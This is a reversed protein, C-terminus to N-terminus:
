RRRELRRERGRRSEIKEEGNEQLDLLMPFPYTHNLSMVHEYDKTKEHKHPAHFMIGIEECSHEVEETTVPWELFEFLARVLVDCKVGSTEHSFWEYRVGAWSRENPAYKSIREYENYIHHLYREMVAAHGRFSQDFDSAGLDVEHAAVTSWWDRELYLIKMRVEGEELLPHLAKYVWELDYHEDMKITGINCHRCEHEFPFSVFEVICTHTGEKVGKRRNIDNRWYNQLNDSRNLYHNFWFQNRFNRDGGGRFMVKRRTIQALMELLPKLAHHGAGEVGVVWIFTSNAEQYGKGMLPTSLVERSESSLAFLLAVLILGLAGM